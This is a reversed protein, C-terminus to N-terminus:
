GLCFWLSQGSINKGFLIEFFRWLHCRIENLLMFWPPIVTDRTDGVGLLKQRDAGELAEENTPHGPGDLHHPQLLNAVPRSAM